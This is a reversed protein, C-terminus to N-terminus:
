KDTKKESASLQKQYKDTAKRLQKTLGQRFIKMKADWRQEVAERTELPLEDVGMCSGSGISSVDSLREGSQEM